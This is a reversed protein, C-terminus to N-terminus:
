RGPFQGNETFNGMIPTAHKKLTEDMELRPLPTVVNSNALDLKDDVTEQDSFPNQRTGFRKM